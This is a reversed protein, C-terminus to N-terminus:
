RNGIGDRLIQRDLTADSVSTDIGFYKSRGPFAAGIQDNHGRVPRLHLVEQDAGIRCPDYPM